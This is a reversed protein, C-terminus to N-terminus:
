ERVVRFGVTDYTNRADDNINRHAARLADAQNDLSGSRLVRKDCDGQDEDLWASGDGPAGAYNDHVCDEVWEWVNGHMDYLGFANPKFSGAPFTGEDCEIFNAGNDLERHCAPPADGWSYLTTTGARAAYEWEAESPLRWFEGTEESLWEVYDQADHWSVFIVPHRGRGRESNDVDACAGADFCSDWQDFTIETESMHFGALTVQKFREQDSNGAAPGMTFSGGPIFITEPIEAVFNAEDEPVLSIDKEHIGSGPFEIIERHSVYGESELLLEFKDGEKFYDIDVPTRGIFEGDVSVSANAPLSTVQITPIDRFWEYLLYGVALAVVALAASMLKGPGHAPPQKHPKPGSRPEPNDRMEDLAELLKKFGKAYDVTFDIWNLRQLRMPVKCEELRLTIVPKHYTLGWSWEDAVAKSAVSSRSLLVIVASCNEVLYEIRTDWPVGAPIDMQDWWADIDKDQLDAILRKVFATDARSYSIFYRPTKDTM